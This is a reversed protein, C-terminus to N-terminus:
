LSRVNELGYQNLIASLNTKAVDDAFGSDLFVCTTEGVPALEKHWGVIGLALPEADSKSVKKDLCVILTGAGIAYVRKSSITREEIPVALDLGLKLLLEYLIDSEVRGEKIHDVSKKVIEELKEWEPEWPLINSTDLRFARFGIDGKFMPNNNKIKQGARRLREKTVEALNAPKDLEKCLDFMKKQESADETLMEPLQVLIFKRMLDDKSNLEYVSHGTTGSGAFYDLVIDDKCTVWKIIRSLLNVHKETDFGIESGKISVDMWNDSILKYERPPVYYQVVGDDNLRVFNLEENTSQLHDLYFDDLSINKDLREHLYREYNEIAVSTRDESWRWQGSEPKKGFLEYRMTPRDTGRWFTDWKGSYSENTDHSLKPMRSESSKSYCLLYEHGSSLNSISEFQAQVNKIGRRVAICNRFNEEGFIENCIARLGVLEYNDISIFIFGDARLLNRSLRLRPYMMNLWDTHFRGSSETNAEMKAGGEIQGTLELYNKINDQFNDPYVFDKGTNYPPDIYILKVKGAYSKQLLKLVELNDGEIMLNKTTDWDVSDEKCPRLTGTSPTLAIQRAKRKGFWNLGYKEDKEEEPLLTAGMLQKLVTIDINGESVAEPFLGKLIEINQAIMDESQAEKDTRNIPTMSDGENWKEKQM